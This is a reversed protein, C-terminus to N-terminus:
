KMGVNFKYDFTEMKGSPPPPLQWQIARNKVCEAFQPDKVEDKSLAFRNVKGNPAIEFKIEMSGRLTVNRQAAEGVCAQIDGRNQRVSQLAQDKYPHCALLACSLAGLCVAFRNRKVM